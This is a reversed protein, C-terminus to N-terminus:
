TPSTWTSQGRARYESITFACTNNGSNKTPPTPQGNLTYWEPASQGTPSDPSRRHARGFDICFLQKQIKAILHNSTQNDPGKRSSIARARIKSGTWGQYWSYSSSAEFHAHCLTTGDPTITPQREQQAIIEGGAEGEVAKKRDKMKKEEWMCKKELSHCTNWGIRYLHKLMHHTLVTKVNRM